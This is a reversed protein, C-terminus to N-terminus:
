APRAHRTRRDTLVRAAIDMTRAQLANLEATVEALEALLLERERETLRAARRTGKARGPAMGLRVVKDQSRVRGSM